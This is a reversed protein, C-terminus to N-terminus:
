DSDNTEREYIYGFCLWVKKEFSRLLNWFLLRLKAFLSTSILLTILLDFKVKYLVDVDTVTLFTELFIFEGTHLSLNNLISLPNVPHNVIPNIACPHRWWYGSTPQDFFSPRHDAVRLVFSFECVFVLVKVSRLHASSQSARGDRHPTATRQNEAIGVM